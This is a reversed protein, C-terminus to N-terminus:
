GGIVDNAHSGAVSEPRGHSERSPSLGTLTGDLSGKMDLLEISLSAAQAFEGGYGQVEALSTGPSLVPLHASIGMEKQLPELGVIERQWKDMDRPVSTAM